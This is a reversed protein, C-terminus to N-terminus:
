GDYPVYLGGAIPPAPAPIPPLDALLASVPAAEGATTIGMGGGDAGAAAVNCSRM